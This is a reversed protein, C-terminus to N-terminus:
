KWSRYPNTVLNANYYRPDHTVETGVWEPKHFPQNCYSLEIEALVLGENDDHFEDIEWCFEGQPIRYRTKSIVPSICLSFLLITADEEPIEYEFELRSQGQTKGKITLTNKGNGMRVRVTREKDLSLYGQQYDAGQLGEKWSANRVLFKKETEIHM